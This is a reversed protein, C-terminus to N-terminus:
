LEALPLAARVVGAGPAEPEARIAVYVMERQLTDSWRLAVGRGTERAARIEPREGHNDMTAPDHDSDGLVRGAGDIFTLRAHVEAGVRKALADLAAADAARFLPRMAERALVADSFLREETTARAEGRVLAAAGLATAV